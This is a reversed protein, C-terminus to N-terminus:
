LAVMVGILTLVLALLAGSAWRLNSLDHELIFVHSSHNASQRELLSHSDQSGPDETM